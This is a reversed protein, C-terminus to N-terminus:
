LLIWNIEMSIYVYNFMQLWVYLKSNYLASLVEIPIIHFM